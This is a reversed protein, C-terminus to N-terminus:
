ENDDGILGPNDAYFTSLIRCTVDLEAYETFEEDDFQMALLEIQMDGGVMYRYFKRLQELEMADNEIKALEYPNFNSMTKAGM